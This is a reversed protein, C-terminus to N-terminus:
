RAAAALVKRGVGKALNVWIVAGRPHSYRIPELLRRANEIVWAHTRRYPPAPGLQAAPVRHRRVSRRLDGLTLPGAVGVLECVGVVTGSGSEVLAIQGRVKTSSSRLEWNKRGELILDIWPQKVLLAKM